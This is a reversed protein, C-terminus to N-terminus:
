GQEEKRTVSKLREVESVPIMWVTQGEDGERTVAEIHGRQALGILLEVGIGLTRAATRSSVLPRGEEAAVADVFTDPRGAGTKKRSM